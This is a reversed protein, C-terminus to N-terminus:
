PKLRIVDVLADKGKVKHAGLPEIPISSPLRAGIDGSALIIVEADPDVDRGLSELRSAVNVTDGIVTYNVRGVAGIDGVVLPGRHLGIRIRVPPLGNKRREENDAMIARAIGIAAEAAPIDPADMRQPAGWFAMVSDGIYKDITGQHADIEAGILSLHQNVFTAIEGTTMTESLSTFGVIDTFLVALEREEPPADARGERILQNVLSKPVYRIFASLGGLMANFGNALDELERVASGPLPQVADFDLRAVLRAGDAARKIPRAIYHALFGTAVLSLGLLVLGILISRTLLHLPQELVSASFHAGIKIPLTGFKEGSDEYVVFRRAGDVDFGALLDIEGTFQYDEASQVEHDEHSALFTDPMSKMDILPANPSLQDEVEDLRPHALLKGAGYTLFVTLDDTSVKKTIISLRELSVGVFVAGLFTDEDRIPTVYAVYSHSRGPIFQVPTWFGETEDRAKEMQPALNPLKAVPARFPVIVGDGAGRDVQVAYGDNSAVILLSAQPTGALAGYTFTSLEEVDDILVSGAIVAKATFAGQAEIADLQSAFDNQLADMGIDVLTGGLSRVIKESTIVQVALVLAATVLVFTGIVITLTPTLKIRRRLKM